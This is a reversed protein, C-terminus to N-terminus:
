YHNYSSYMMINFCTIDYFLKHYHYGAFSLMDRNIEVKDWLESEAKKIFQGLSYLQQRTPVPANPYEKAVQQVVQM